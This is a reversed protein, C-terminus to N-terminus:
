FNNKKEKSNLYIYINFCKIIFLDINYIICIKYIIKLIYM